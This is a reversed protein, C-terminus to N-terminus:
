RGMGPGQKLSMWWMRLNQSTRSLVMDRGTFSLVYDFRIVVARDALNVAAVAAIAGVLGFGTGFWLLAILALFLV